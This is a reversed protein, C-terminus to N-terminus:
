IVAKRYGLFKDALVGGLIPTLYVLGSYIGLLQLADSRTWEWGGNGIKATLYLVLLAKMGYFSFREWMETFFLIFLAPPHGNIAASKDM